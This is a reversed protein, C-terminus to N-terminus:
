SRKWARLKKRLSINSFCSLVIGCVVIGDLFVVSLITWDPIPLCAVMFFLMAVAFCPTLYDFIFDALGEKTIM